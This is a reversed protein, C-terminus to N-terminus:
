EGEKTLKGYTFEFGPKETEKDKISGVIIVFWWGGEGCCV